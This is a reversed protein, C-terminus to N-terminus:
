TIVRSWDSGGTVTDVCDSPAAATGPEINMWFIRKKGGEM